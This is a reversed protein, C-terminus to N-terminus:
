SYSDKHRIQSALHIKQGNPYIIQLYTLMGESWRAPNGAESSKFCTSRPEKRFMGHHGPIGFTTGDFIKLGQRSSPKEGPWHTSRTSRSEEGCIYAGAGRYLRIDYSFGSGMIGKGLFGRQRAESLAKELIRWSGPYEARLYIYGLNAGVAYGALIMGEILSHPDREMIYRDKFTGPEGEDANAVVYKIGDHKKGFTTPM